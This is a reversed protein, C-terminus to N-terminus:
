DILRDISANRENWDIRGEKRVIKDDDGSSCRVCGVELVIKWLSSGVEVLSKGRHSSSTHSKLNIYSSEIGHLQLRSSPAIDVYARDTPQSPRRGRTHTQLRIRSAEEKVFSSLFTRLLSLSRYMRTMRQQPLTWTAATIARWEIPPPQTSLSVYQYANLDM